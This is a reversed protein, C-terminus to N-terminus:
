GTVRVWGVTETSCRRSCYDSYDTAKDGCIICLGNRERYTLMARERDRYRKGAQRCETSCYSKWAGPRGGKVHTHCDWMGPMVTRAHVPEVPPGDIPAGARPGAYAIAAGDIVVVGDRVPGGRGPILLDAEIRQRTSM